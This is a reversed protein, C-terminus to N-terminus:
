LDVNIDFLLLISMILMKNGLTNLLIVIYGIIGM